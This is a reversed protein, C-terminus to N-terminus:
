YGRRHSSFSRLLASFSCFNRTIELFQFTSNGFERFDPGNPLFPSFASGINELKELLTPKEISMTQSETIIFRFLMANRTRNVQTESYLKIQIFSTRDQHTQVFRVM